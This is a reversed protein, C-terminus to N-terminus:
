NIGICKEIHLRQFETRSPRSLENNEKGLPNLVSKIQKM